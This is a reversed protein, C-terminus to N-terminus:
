SRRGTTVRRLWAWFREALGSAYLIFLAMFVTIGCLYPLTGGWPFVWPSGLIVWLGLSVGIYVGLRVYLNNRIFRDSELRAEEHTAGDLRALRMRSRHIAGAMTKATIVSVAIVGLMGAICVGFVSWRFAPSQPFWSLRTLNVAVVLLIVVVIMLALLLLPHFSVGLIRIRPQGVAEMDEWDDVYSTRLRRM